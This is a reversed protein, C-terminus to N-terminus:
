PAAERRMLRVVMGVLVLVALALATWFVAPPVLEDARAPAADALRQEAGLTVDEALRGMVQPALLQLDYTPSAVNDKGYLLRLPQDAPRFLRISYSPLLLTPKEVPLPQNDGEAMLLM